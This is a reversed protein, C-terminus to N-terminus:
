LGRVPRSARIHAISNPRPPAHRTRPAPSRPTFHAPSRAGVRCRSKSCVSLTHADRTRICQLDILSENTPSPAPRPAAGRPAERDTQRRGTSALDGAWIRPRDGGRGWLERNERPEASRHALEELKPLFKLAHEVCLKAAPRKALAAEQLDLWAEISCSCSTRPLWTSRWSSSAGNREVVSSSPKGRACARRQLPTTSLLSSPPTLTLAPRAYM